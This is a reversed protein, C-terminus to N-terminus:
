PSKATNAHCILRRMEPAPAGFDGNREKTTETKVTIVTPSAAMMSQGLPSSIVIFCIYEDLTDRQQGTNKL